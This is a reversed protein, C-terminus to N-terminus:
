SLVDAFVEEVSKGRITQQKRDEFSQFLARLAATDHLLRLTEHYAEWEEMSIMVINGQKHTVIVSEHDNVVHERLEFLRKRAESMSVAQM